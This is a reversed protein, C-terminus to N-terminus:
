NFAFQTTLEKLYMTIFYLRINNTYMLIIIQQDGRNQQKEILELIDDDSVLYPIIMELTKSLSRKKYEPTPMMLNDFTVLIIEDKGYECSTNWNKVLAHFVITEAYERLDNMIIDKDPPDEIKLPKLMYDWNQLDSMYMEFIFRFETGNVIMILGVKNIPVRLIRRFFTSDGRDNKDLESFTKGLIKCSKINTTSTTIVIYRADGMKQMLINIHPRLYNYIRCFDTETLTLTSM